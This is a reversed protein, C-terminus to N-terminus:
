TVLKLDWKAMLGCGAHDIKESVFSVQSPLSESCWEGAWVRIYSTFNMKRHVEGQLLSTM